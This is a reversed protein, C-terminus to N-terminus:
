SDFLWLRRKETISVLLTYNDSFKIIAERRISILIWLYKYTLLKAFLKCILRCHLESSHVQASWSNIWTVFLRQVRIKYTNTVNLSIRRTPLNCTHKCEFQRTYFLGWYFETYRTHINAFINLLLISQTKNVQHVYVWRKIDGHLRILRVVKYIRNLVTIGTGDM